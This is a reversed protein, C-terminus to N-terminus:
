IMDDNDSPPIIKVEDLDSNDDTKLNINQESQQKANEELKQKENLIKQKQEKKIKVKEVILKITRPLKKILKLFDNFCAMIFSELLLISFGLTLNANSIPLFIIVTLLLMVFAVYSLFEQIPVLTFDSKFLNFIGIAIVCIISLAFIVISIFYVIKLVVSVNGFFNVNIFPLILTILSVLAFCFLFTSLCKKNYM